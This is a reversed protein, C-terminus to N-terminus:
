KEFDIKKLVNKDEILLITYVGKELHNVHLYIENKIPLSVTGTYRFRKKNM